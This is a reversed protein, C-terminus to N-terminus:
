TFFCLLVEKQNKAKSREERPPVLTGCLCKPDRASPTRSDLLAVPQKGTLARIVFGESMKLSLACSRQQGQSGFSKVSLGDLKVVM